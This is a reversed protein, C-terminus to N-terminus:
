ESDEGGTADRNSPTKAAISINQSYADKLSRANRIARPRM